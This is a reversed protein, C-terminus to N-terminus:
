WRWTSGCGATRSRWNWSWSSSSRPRKVPVRRPQRPTFPQKLVVEFTSDDLVQVEKYGDAGDQFKVGQALTFTWSLGESSEQWTRALEPLVNLNEDMALLSDFIPYLMECDTINTYTAPDLTV